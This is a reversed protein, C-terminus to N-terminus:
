MANVKEAPGADPFAIDSIRVIQPRYGSGSRYDALGKAAEALDDSALIVYNPHSSAVDVGPLGPDPVGPDPATEPAPGPDTAVPVDPADAGPADKSTGGGGGGCAALFALVLFSSHGRM